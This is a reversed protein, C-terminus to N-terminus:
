PGREPQRAIPDVISADIPPLFLLVRQNPQGTTGDPRIPGPAGLRHGLPWRHPDSPVFSTGLWRLSVRFSWEEELERPMPLTQTYQGLLTWPRAHPLPLTLNCGWEEPIPDRAHSAIVLGGSLERWLRERLTLAWNWTEPDATLNLQDFLVKECHIYASTDILPLDAQIEQIDRPKLGYGASIRGGSPGGPSLGQADERMRMASRNFPAEENLNASWSGNKKSLSLSSSFPVRMIKWSREMIESRELSELLVRELALGAGATATELFRQDVGESDPPPLLGLDLLRYHASIASVPERFLPSSRPGSVQEVFLENFRVGYNFGVPHLEAALPLGLPLPDAPVILATVLLLQFM